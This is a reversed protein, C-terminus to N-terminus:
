RRGSARRPARSRRRTRSPCSRRSARSGRAERRLAPDRLALRDELALVQQLHRLLLQAVDAAAVHRHDELIRHRRQVRDERDAVLDALRQEDVVLAHAGVVGLLAGISSSSTTPTGDASRRISWYGCSNEPPIRWRAIIAIAIAFLGLTRIASSGVVASSTVIWACITSTSFAARSSVCAAITRIVCSRPRIASSASRTTTMYAPRTTSSASTKVIKLSGRCGYVPRGSSCGRGARRRAPTAAASGPGAASCSRAAAPSRRGDASCTRARAPQGAAGVNRLQALDAVPRQVDGAAVVGLLEGLRM